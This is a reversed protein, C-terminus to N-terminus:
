QLQEDTTIFSAVGSVGGLFCDSIDALFLTITQISLRALVNGPNSVIICTVYCDGWGLLGRALCVGGGRALSSSQESSELLLNVFTPRLGFTM